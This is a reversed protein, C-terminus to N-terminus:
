NLMWVKNLEVKYFSSRAYKKSSNCINIIYRKRTLHMHYNGIAATVFNWLNLLKFWGLNIRKIIRSTLFRFDLHHCPQIWRLSMLLFDMEKNKESELSKKWEKIRPGKRADSQGRTVLLWMDAVSYQQGRLFIRKIVTLINLM